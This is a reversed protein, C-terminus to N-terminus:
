VFVDTMGGSTIFLTAVPTVTTDPAAYTQIKALKHNLKVSAIIIFSWIWFERGIYVSTTLTPGAVSTM